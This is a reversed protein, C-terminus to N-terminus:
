GADAGLRLRFAGDAAWTRLATLPLLNRAAQLIKAGFISVLSILPNRSASILPLFTRERRRSTRDTGRDIGAEPCSGGSANM